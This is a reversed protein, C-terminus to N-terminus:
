AGIALLPDGKNIALSSVLFLVRGDAPSEAAQLVNGQLDMVCGLAQGKRVTQDVTTQPYWYGEHDSRLWVFHEILVSPLPAPAPEALMGLHCLLRKLGNTHLAVAEPPWIGQAGSEALIAPIGAHAAASHIAGGKSESRVIYRIGFVKAMELSVNDVSANGTLPYITFPVLAEILDGGHLDVYYNGQKIANQFIWNAIQETPGGDAKGPFVRNLNVGDLPCVYISRARFAPPNAVPIIIVRGRLVDPQLRRGLDLAAAISAYEAGHIGGTAVLTPGDFKGNILFMELGLPKGQIMIEQVGVTKEGPKAKLNGVVLEKQV